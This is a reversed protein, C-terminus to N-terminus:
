DNNDGDEILEGCKPCCPVREDENFGLDWSGEWVYECTPCEYKGDNRKIKNAM